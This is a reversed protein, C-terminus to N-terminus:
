PLVATGTTGCIVFRGNGFALSVATGVSAPVPIAPSWTVGNDTSESYSLLSGSVAVWKGNGFELESASVPPMTRSAWTRGGDASVICTNLSTSMFIGNGFVCTDATTNVPRNAEVWTIGDVSYLARVQGVISNRSLFVGVTGSDSSVYPLNSTAIGAPLSCDGWTIGDLTHRAIAQTGDASTGFVVIRNAAIGVRISSPTFPALADAGRDVWTTGDTSTTIKRGIISVFASGNHRYTLQQNLNTSASPGGANEWAAGDASRVALGNGYFFGGSFTLSRIPPPVSTALTAGSCRFVGIPISM